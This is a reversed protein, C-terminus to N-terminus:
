LKFEKLEKIFESWDDTKEEKHEDGAVDRQLGDFGKAGIAESEKRSFGVDRLKEEFERITLEKMNKVAIISAEENAPFTVISVEILDVAKLMRKGAEFTKEIIRFGISLKNILKKRMLFFAEKAQQIDDIFLKGEVLLGKADEEMNTWEGIIEKNDHQWFMFVKSAPRDQLSKLFAGKEVVDDVKDTNGFTSAYAIFVGKEDISKVEFDYSKQEIKNMQM